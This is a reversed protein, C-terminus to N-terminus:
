RLSQATVILNDPAVRILGQHTSDLDAILFFSIAILVPLVLHGSVHGSLGTDFGILACCCLAIAFMLAWAEMPIRNEWAAGAYGESDIVDNMGQAVLATVSNPRASAARQVVGWMEEQLTESTSHHEYLVSEDGAAYTAIRENIYRRLLNRLQTADAAPLMGVRLYASGIANAETAEDRKRDDYRGVAMSFSFGIILALLTLSSTLVLNLEDREDDSMAGRRKRFYLGAYSALLMLALALIFFLFPQDLPRVTM